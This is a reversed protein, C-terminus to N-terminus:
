GSIPSRARGPRRRAYEARPSPGSLVTEAARARSPLPDALRERLASASLLGPREPVEHVDPVPVPHVPADTGPRRTGAALPTPRAACSAARRAIKGSATRPVAAIEHIEEPVKHRVARGACAEAARQGPRAWRARARRVRGPGRGPRRAAAGAVAADAVGPM